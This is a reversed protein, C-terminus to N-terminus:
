RTIRPTYGGGFPVHHSVGVWVGVNAPLLYASVSVLCVVQFWLRNRSDSQPGFGCVLLLLQRFAHKLAPGEYGDKTRGCSRGCLCGVLAFFSSRPNEGRKFKISGKLMFLEDLRVTGTSKRSSVRRELLYSLSLRGYFQLEM